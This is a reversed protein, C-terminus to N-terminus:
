LNQFWLDIKVVSYWIGPKETRIHGAGGRAPSKKIRLDSDESWGSVFGQHGILGEVERKERKKEGADKRNIERNRWREGM